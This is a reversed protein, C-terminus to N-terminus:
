LRVPGPYLTFVPKLNQWLPMPAKKGLQNLDLHPLTFADGEKRTFDKSLPCPHKELSLEYNLFLNVPLNTPQTTTRRNGSSRSNFYFILFICTSLGLLFAVLYFRSSTFSILLFFFILFVLIIIIGSIAQTIMPNNNNPTMQGNTLDVSFYYVHFLFVLYSLM